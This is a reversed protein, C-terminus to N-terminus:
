GRLGVEAALAKWADLSREITEMTVSYAIRFHGPTGFGVGPAVLIRHKQAVRVFDVDDEIPSRPFLYFAGQPKVMEFGMGTLADYLLDRKRQYLSVDVSVGQLQSALVQMTAPANVFGLVRNSFVLADLLRELDACRPSVALYGIREGALALDKSHSTAVIANDIYNFIHPYATGDYILKRYPEDSIVYIDRGLEKQRRELLQALQRIQSEPYVVGTPNNPSNIIVAKTRENIAEDLASLDLLFQSDTPIVRTTGGHNDIYFRYEVFYPSFVVVEDGHDLLAKLAVNLAGGAGVTMVINQPGLEMGLEGSLHSAIRERVHPFGANPMYRHLGAPPNQALERWLRQFEEPPEDPPNGLSFDFVNEDGYQQKLRAGEEFMRRIWSGQQVYAAVKESVGM